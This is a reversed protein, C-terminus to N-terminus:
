ALTSKQDLDNLIPIQGSQSSRKPRDCLFKYNPAMYINDIQHFVAIIRLRPLAELINSTPLHNNFHLIVYIIAENANVIIVSDPWADLYNRVSLLAPKNPDAPQLVNSLGGVHGIGISDLQHTEGVKFIKPFYTHDQYAKIAPILSKNTGLDLIIPTQYCLDVSFM